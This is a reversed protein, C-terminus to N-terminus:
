GVSQGRQGKIDADASVKEDGYGDGAKETVGQFNEDAPVAEEGDYYSVWAGTPQGKSRGM